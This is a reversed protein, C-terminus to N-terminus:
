FMCLMLQKNCVGFLKEADKGTKSFLYSHMILLPGIAKKLELTNVMKYTYVSIGYPEIFFDSLPIIYLM